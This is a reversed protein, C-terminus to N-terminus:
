FSARFSRVDTDLVVRCLMLAVLSVESAKVEGNDGLGEVIKNALPRLLSEMIKLRERSTSYAMGAIVADIASQVATYPNRLSIPQVGVAKRHDNRYDNESAAMIWMAAVADSM